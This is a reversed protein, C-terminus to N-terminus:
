ISLTTKKKCFIYTKLVKKSAPTRRSVNKKLVLQKVRFMRLPPIKEIYLFLCPIFNAERQVVDGGAVDVIETSPQFLRELEGLM